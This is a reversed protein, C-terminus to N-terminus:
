GTGSSMSVPLRSMRLLAYVLSHVYLEREEQQRLRRITEESDFHSSAVEDRVWRLVGARPSPLRREEDPLAALEADLLNTLAYATLWPNHMWPSDAYRKAHARAAERPDIGDLAGQRLRLMDLLLADLDERRRRVEPPARQLWAEVAAELARLSTPM